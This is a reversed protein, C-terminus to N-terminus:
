SKTEQVLGVRGLEVPKQPAHPHEAGRYVKLKQLQARGLTGKPLMGWVAKRIVREPDKKILERYPTSRLGGPFGSHRHDMKSDLKDGTLRIKEANIVIVFDGTDMHPTFMPKHKGRLVTAVQTALRGLAIDTADVVFWSRTIDTPKATYTKPNM